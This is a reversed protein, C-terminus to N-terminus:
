PISCSEKAKREGGGGLLNLSDRIQEKIAIKISTLFPAHRTFQELGDYGMVAMDEPVRMGRAALFEIVGAAKFDTDAFVCDGDFGRNLLISAGRRGDKQTDLGLVIDNDSPTLGYDRIAKKYSDFKKSEMGLFAIKRYGCELLYSIARYTNLHVANSLRICSFACDPDSGIIVVQKKRRDILQHILNEYEGEGAFFLADYDGVTAEVQALSSDTPLLITSFLENPTLCQTFASTIAQVIHWCDPNHEPVDLNATPLLFAYKMTQSRHPAPGFFTGSRNKSYLVGEATLENLAKHATMPDVHLLKALERQSFCADGPKPRNKKQWELLAGKVKEVCRQTKKTSPLM